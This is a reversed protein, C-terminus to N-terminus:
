EVKPPNTSIKFGSNFQESLIFFPYMRCEKCSWLNLLVMIVWFIMQNKFPLCWMSYKICQEQMQRWVQGEGGWVSLDNEYQRHIHESSTCGEKGSKGSWTFTVNGLSEGVMSDPVITLQSFFSPSWNFSPSRSASISVSLAVIPKSVGSSPYRALIRTSCPVGFIGIPFTILLKRYITKGLM